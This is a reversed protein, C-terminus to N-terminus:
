IYNDGRVNRLEKKREEFCLEKLKMAERKREELRREERRWTKM